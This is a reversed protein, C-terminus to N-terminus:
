TDTFYFTWDYQMQIVTENAIVLIYIPGGQTIENFEGFRLLRNRFNFRLIRIWHNPDGSGNQGALIIVRDFLIRYIRPCFARNYASVGWSTPDKLIETIDPLMGVSTMPKNMRVIMMRLEPSYSTPQATLRFTIKMVGKLERCYRGVYQTVNDGLSPHNLFNVYWSGSLNQAATIRYGKKEAM